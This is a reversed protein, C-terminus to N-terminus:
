GKKNFWKAFEEAAKARASYKAKEEKTMEAFTREEGDPIFISDYPLKPHSTGRVDEALKGHNVGVFIEPEKGLECHAIVTKFYVKRSKNELLKLIGEYGINQFVFKTRIGPFNKYAEFYIGTDEVIVPMKLREVAYKAKGKAISEQEDGIEPIEVEESVVKIGFKELYNSIEEIKGLNSTVLCISKM